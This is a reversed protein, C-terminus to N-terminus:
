QNVAWGQQKSLAALQKVIEDAMKEGLSDVDAGMNESAVDSAAVAGVAAGAGLTEAAGPKRSSKATATFSQLMQPQAGAAQYSFQTAAQVESGGAGLGIINRRTQNGEDIVLFQGAINFQNSGAPGAAPGAAREVTFGLKGVKKALAASVADVLKAADANQHAMTSDSGVMRKIRQLVGQDLKVDTASADYDHIVVVDPRALRAAAGYGQKQQVDTRTCGAVALLVVAGAFWRALKHSSMDM